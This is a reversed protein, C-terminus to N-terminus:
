FKLLLVYVNFIYKTFVGKGSLISRGEGQLFATKM